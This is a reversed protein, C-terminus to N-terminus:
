ISSSGTGAFSLAFVAWIMAFATEFRLEFEFDSLFPLAILVPILGGAAQLANLSRIDQGGLRRKQYLSGLTVSLMGLMNILIPITIDPGRFGKSLAAIVKPEIVLLVGALGILVGLWQAPLLREGTMRASLLATLLPQLAAILGSIGAPVGNRIAWWVGILYLGQLLVGSFLTQRWETATKPWSARVAAAFAGIVLAAIAFRIALFLIPDAFPAAYGASVWGTSWVLIFLFPALAPFGPLRM